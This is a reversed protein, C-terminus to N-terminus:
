GCPILLVDENYRALKGEIIADLAEDFWRVQQDHFCRRLERRSIPAKEHIKSLLRSKKDTNAAPDPTVAPSITQAHQRGMWKVLEVAETATTEDIEMGSNGRLIWNLLALKPALEPLWALYPRLNCPASELGTAFDDAFQNLVDEAEPKTTYPTRRALCRHEFFRKLALGWRAESPFEPLPSAQCDDHLFLAPVPIRNPDFGRPGILETPNCRTQWLLNISARITKTGHCLPAGAWSRNLSESLAAREDPKLQLFDAGIDNGIGTTTIDNDFCHGLLHFLAKLTVSSTTTFPKLQAPARDAEDQLSALLEPDPSQTQRAQAVQKQLNLVEAQIVTPTKKVLAVQMDFIPGLFPATLADMWPLTRPSTHTVVVNFAPSVPRRRALVVNPGLAAAAVALGTAAVAPASAGCLDTIDGVIDCILDPGPASDQAVGFLDTLHKSSVTSEQTQTEM